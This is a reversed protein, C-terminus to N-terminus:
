MAAFSTAVFRVLGKLAPRSLLAAKAFLKCAEDLHQLAGKAYESSPARMAVM